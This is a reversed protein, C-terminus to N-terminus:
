AAASRGPRSRRPTPPTTNSIATRCWSSMAAIAVGDRIAAGKGVNVSHHTVVLGRGIQRDLLPGSGDTSGDDVVIVERVCGAPLPAALVGQIVTVLTPRENYVPIILSVKM